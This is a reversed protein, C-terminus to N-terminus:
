KKPGYIPTIGVNMFAIHFYFWNQRNFDIKIPGMGQLDLGEFPVLMWPTGMSIINGMIHSESDILHEEYPLNINYILQSTLRDIWPHTIPKIFHTSSMLLQAGHPDNQLTSPSQKPDNEQYIYTKYKGQVILIINKRGKYAFRKHPQPCLWVKQETHKTNKNNYSVADMTAVM